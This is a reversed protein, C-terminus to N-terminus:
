TNKEETVCNIDLRDYCDQEPIQTFRLRQSGDEGSLNKAQCGFILYSVVYIWQKSNWVSAKCIASENHLIFCNIDMSLLYLAETCATQSSTNSLKFSAAKWVYLHKDQQMIRTDILVLRSM